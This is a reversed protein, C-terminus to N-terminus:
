AARRAYPRAANVPDINGAHRVCRDQDGATGAEDAGMQGIGQQGLTIRHAHQVIQGRALRFIQGHVMRTDLQDLTVHGIGRQHLTAHLATACHHMQGCHGRHLGRHVIRYAGMLAVKDAGQIDAFGHARM